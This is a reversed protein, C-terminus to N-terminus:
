PPADQIKVAGRIIGGSPRDKPKGEWSKSDVIRQIEEDPTVECFSWAMELWAPPLTPYLKELQLVHAKRRSLQADTMGWTNTHRTREGPTGFEDEISPLSQVEM